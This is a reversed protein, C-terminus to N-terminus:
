KKMDGFWGLVDRTPVSAVTTFSLSERATSQSPGSSGALGTFQDSALLLRCTIRM